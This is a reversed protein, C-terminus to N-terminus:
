PPEVLNGSFFNLVIVTCQLQSSELLFLLIQNQSIVQKGNDATITLDAFLGDQLASLLSYPLSSLQANM